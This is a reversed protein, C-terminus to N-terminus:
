KRNKYAMAIDVPGDNLLDIKMDAAFIGKNSSENQLILLYKHCVFESHM